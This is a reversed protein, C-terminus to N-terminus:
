RALSAPRDHRKQQPSAAEEIQCYEPGAYHGSTVLLSAHVRGEYLACGHSGTATMLFNGAQTPTKRDAPKAKAQPGEAPGVIMAVGVAM